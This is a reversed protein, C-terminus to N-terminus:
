LAGYGLPLAASQLSSPRLDDLFRAEALHQGRFVDIYLPNTRATKKTSLRTLPRAPASHCARIVLGVRVLSASMDLHPLNQYTKTRPGLRRRWTTLSSDAFSADGTRNRGAGRSICCAGLSRTM